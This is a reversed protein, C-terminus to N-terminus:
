LEMVQMQSEGPPRSSTSPFSYGQSGLRVCDHFVLAFVSSYSEILPSQPCIFSCCFCHTTESRFWSPPFLSHIIDTPYNAFNSYLSYILFCYLLRGGSGRMWLKAKWLKLQGGDVVVFLILHVIGSTLLGYTNLPMGDPYRSSTECRGAGDQGPRSEGRQGTM